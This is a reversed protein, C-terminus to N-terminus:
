TACRSPEPGTACHRFARPRTLSGISTSGRWGTPPIWGAVMLALPDLPWVDSPLYTCSVVECYWRGDVERAVQAYPNPATGALFELVVFQRVQLANVDVTLDAALVQWGIEMPVLIVTPASM